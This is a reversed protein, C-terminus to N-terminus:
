DRWEWDLISYLYADTYGGLVDTWKDREIGEFKGGVRVIWGRIATNDVTTHFVVRRIKREEFVYELVTYLADTAMGEGFYMPHIFVGVECSNGSLTDINYIQAAGILKPKTRTKTDNSGTLSHINFEIFSKDGARAIRRARADAVSFQRPLYRMFQRTKPDSRLAAMEEDDAEQPPDLAIRGSKSRLSVVAM